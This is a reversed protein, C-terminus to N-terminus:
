RFEIATVQLTAKVFEVTVPAPEQVGCVFSRRVPGGRMVVTRPDKVLLVVVGSSSRVHLRAGTEGCDVQMLNGTVSADGKPNNWTDPTIAAPRKSGATATTEDRLNLAARAMDAEHDTHAFRLARMAAARSEATRGLKHYAYSLAQWFYAQRPLIETARRLHEVAEAYREGDSARIGLLFHAEAYDPNATVAKQLFSTVLDPDAGTDRLLMAYEFYTSGDHAGLEIAREFHRRAGAYDRDRMAVVALGTQAAPSKPYHKAANEYVEGAERDRGMLLLIEGRSQQAEAPDLVTAGSFVLQEAPLLEVEVTRFGLRLYSGLDTLAADMSKDFTKVFASPPDEGATLRELFIPLKGRYAEGFTLMHTLAWSQAYFIGTKGAENYHKSRQDVGALEEGTLWTSSGLAVLHSAIPAGVTARDTGVTLTSYLEAVGEELWQPLATASHNVVSHTYEHLIIRDLEAGALMVIYDREPGSQYFGPVNPSPRLAAYDRESTFVLVRTPVESGTSWRSSSLVRYAQEFRTLIRQASRENTGTYVEFHPSAVRIWNAGSVASISLFYLVGALRVM